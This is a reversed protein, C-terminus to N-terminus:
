DILRKKIRNIGLFGFLLIGIIVYSIDFIFNEWRSFIIARALRICHTLPLVEAIARLPLSLQQLSFVTGSFFFMPSLFGSTYFSFHDFTRVFSTVFLSIGAFMAGTLFGIFPIFFVRLSSFIRLMLLILLVALSFFFGKTGAWLIEGILLNEVSVPSSIIGDYTRAFTLRVFTGYACEFASTFMATTIIVASGIFQIYPIGEIEKIFGGLGFGIGGLFIIPEVFPEFGNSFINKTYVKMFRYWVSYVRKLLFPVNIM